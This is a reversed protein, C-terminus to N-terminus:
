QIKLFTNTTSTYEKYYNEARDVAPFPYRDILLISDKSLTLTLKNEINWHDSTKGKLKIQMYVGGTRVERDLITYKESTVIMNNKYFIINGKKDLEVSASYNTTHPYFSNDNNSWINHDNGGTQAWSYKGILVEYEGNLKSKSCSYFPIIFVLLFVFYISKM